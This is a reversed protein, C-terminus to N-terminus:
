KQGKHINRNHKMLGSKFQFSKNCIECPFEIGGVHTLKHIKLYAKDRFTKGCFSCRNFCTNDEFHFIMEKRGQFFKLCTKCRYGDKCKVDELMARKNYSYDYHYTKIHLNLLDKRSFKKDCHKCPIKNIDHNQMHRKLTLPSQFQKQCHDCKLKEIKAHAARKHYDFSSKAIFSKNCEDCSFKKFSGSKNHKLHMHKDLDVKSFFVKFCKKCSEEDIVGSEQAIKALEVFEGRTLDGIKQLCELENWIAKDKIAEDVTLTDNFGKVTTVENVVAKTLQKAECKTLVDMYGKLDYEDSKELLLDALSSIDNPCM